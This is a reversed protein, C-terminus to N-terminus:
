WARRTAASWSSRWRTFAATRTSPSTPGTMIGKLAAAEPHGAPDRLGTASWILRYIERLWDLKGSAINDPDTYPVALVIQKRHIEAAEPDDGILWEM